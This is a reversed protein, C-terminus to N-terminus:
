YTCPSYTNTYYPTISGTLIDEGKCDRYRQGVLVIKASTSYYNTHIIYSGPAPLALATSASWLVVTLLATMLLGAILRRRLM